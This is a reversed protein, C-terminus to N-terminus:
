KKCQIGIAHIFRNEDEVEIFMKDECDNFYCDRIEKFGIKELEKKLSLKDWMWMHNSNGWFDSLIDKINKPREHTGLLTENLFEISAEPNGKDLENIYQRAAFELDPVICRFIGGPKLIKYTNKLSKRFDNLSLHELTHSCFVGDCSNDSVPLGKIINGYLANKPFVVNLKSKLLFNLIPNQQIKLTPSADFNKWNIPCCLGCGYQVYMTNTNM